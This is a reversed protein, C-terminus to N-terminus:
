RPRSGLKVKINEFDPADVDPSIVHGHLHGISAGTLTMEGARMFQSYGTLKYSRVIWNVMEFYEVMAEPSLTATTVHHCTPVILCHVKTYRYPFTNLYVSWHKGAKLPTHRLNPFCMYCKDAAQLNQMDELQQPGRAASFEYLRSGAPAVRVWRQFYVMLKAEVDMVPVDERMEWQWLETDPFRVDAPFSEAAFMEGVRTIRMESAMPLALEYLSAGGIVWVMERSDRFPELFAQPDAVVQVAEAVLPHSTVVVNHRHPLPRGISDYTRRGMVVVHGETIERFHRMDSGIRPWPLTGENGIGRQSDMAVIIGIM